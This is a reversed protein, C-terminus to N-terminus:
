IGLKENILVIHININQPPYQIRVTVRCMTQGPGCGDCPKDEACPVDAWLRKANAPAAETKIRKIATHPNDTIKNVGCVVITNKPGFFMSAVRNGNGDINVLDGQRTLANTSTLFYDAFIAKRSVGVMDPNEKRMEVSPSHLTKGSEVLADLIGTEHLTQSGGTGVSEGDAILKMVYDKASASDEFYSAHFGKKNLLDILEQHEGM